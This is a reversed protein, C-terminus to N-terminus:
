PWTVRLGRGEPFDVAHIRLRQDNADPLAVGVSDCKMMQRVSASNARLLDRLELNSVIANNLDLLLKLHENDSRLEAPTALTPARASLDM